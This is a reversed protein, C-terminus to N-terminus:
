AAKFKGPTSDTRQMLRENAQLIALQSRRNIGLKEFIKQLHKKITEPSITCQRAIEKNTLGQAVLEAVRKEQPTLLFVQEATGILQCDAKVRANGSKSLMEKFVHALVYRPLWLEGECVVRIAKLIMQPQAEISVCGSVGFEVIEDMCDPLSDDYLLVIKAAAAKERIIRLREALLAQPVRADLLLVDPQFLELRFLGYEPVAVSANVPLLHEFGGIQRNLAEAEKEHESVILLSIANGDATSCNRDPSSDLLATVQKEDQRLTNALADPAVPHAVSSNMRDNNYYEVFCAGRNKSAEPKNREIKNLIKIAVAEIQDPPAVYEDVYVHEFALPLKNCPTNALYVIPISDSVKLHNAIEACKGHCDILILSPCGADVCKLESYPSVVMIGFGIDALYRALVTTISTKNSIIMVIGRGISRVIQFPEKQLPRNEDDIFGTAM